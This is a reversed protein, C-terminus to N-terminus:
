RRWYWSTFGDTTGGREFGLAEVMRRSPLNDERVDARATGTFGSLFEALMRRGFGRGRCAPAVTWSLMIVGNEGDARLTGVADGDAEVILLERTPDNLVGDMWALHDSIGVQHTARSASRTIPDNRWDLLM